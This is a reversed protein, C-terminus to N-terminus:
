ENFFLVFHKPKANDPIMTADITIGPNNQANLPLVNKNFDMTADLDDLYVVLYKFTKEIKGIKHYKKIDIFKSNLGINNKTKYLPSMIEVQQILSETKGSKKPIIILLPKKTNKNIVTIEDYSEFAGEGETKKIISDQKFINKLESIKTSDLIKGVQKKGITFKNDKKGCSFIVALLLVIGFIQKKM